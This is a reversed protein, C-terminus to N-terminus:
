KIRKYKLANEIIQEKAPRNEPAIKLSCKRKLRSKKTAKRMCLSRKLVRRIIYRSSTM